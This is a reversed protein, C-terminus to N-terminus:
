IGLARAIDPYYLWATIVTGVAAFLILGAKVRHVGRDFQMMAAPESLFSEILRCRSQISGHRWTSAGRPIGNLDAIKRLTRGFVNAATLCLGPPEGEGHVSCSELCAEVNPTICRVGYLDAQREFRRSLWGFGFLWIILLATLAVLQLVSLDTLLGIDNRRGITYLLQLLGGSVYMSCLAFLVFFQLHRHRVHGAEHAFVAEIGRESMTELLADSVLIYRGPAIFGMVAANITTGHTHWLLIDRYRLNIRECTREFRDRLSGAPLPETVWIYRLMLPALGLICVSCIGLVADAAWPLSTLRTLDAKYLDTFHKALVIISMPTAVLLIQHRFKDALYTGLSGDFAPPTNKAAALATAAPDNRPAASPDDPSSTTALAATRIRMELKYFVVWSVCLSALFPLLLSLDGILPISGLSVSGLRCGERMLPAWPTLIMTAILTAAVVGLIIRQAAAFRQAAKEHADRAVGLRTTIRRSLFLALVAILMVQGLAVATMAPWPRGDSGGAASFLSLQEPPLNDSLVFAFALIVVFYM